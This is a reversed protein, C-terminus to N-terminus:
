PNQMIRTENRVGGLHKKGGGGKDEGRWRGRKERQVHLLLVITGERGAYGPARCGPKDHYHSQIIHYHSTFVVISKLMGGVACVNLVKSGTGREREIKKRERGRGIPLALFLFFRSAKKGLVHLDSSM